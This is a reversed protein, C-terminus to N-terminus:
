GCTHIHVNTKTHNTEIHTAKHHGTHLARLQHNNTTYGRLATFSLINFYSYFFSHFINMYIWLLWLSLRASLKILVCSKSPCHNLQSHNHPNGLEVTAKIFCYFFLINRVVYGGQIFVLLYRHLLSQNNTTDTVRHVQVQRGWPSLTKAQVLLYNWFKDCSNHRQKSQMKKERRKRETDLLVTTNQQQLWCFHSLLRLLCQPESSHVKHSPHHFPVTCM